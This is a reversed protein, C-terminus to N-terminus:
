KKLLLVLANGAGLAVVIACDGPQTTYSAGGTGVLMLAGSFVLGTAEAFVVIKASGAQLSEGFSTVQDASLTILTERTAGLDVTGSGSVNAVGGGILPLWLHNTTDFAGTYVPEAGDNYRQAAYGPTTTDVWRKFGAIRAPATAGANGEFATNLDGADLCAGFPWPYGGAEICPTTSSGNAM